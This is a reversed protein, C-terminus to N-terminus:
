EPPAPSSQPVSKSKLSTAASKEPLLKYYSSKLKVAQLSPLLIQDKNNSPTILHWHSTEEREEGWMPSKSFFHELKKKLSYLRLFACPYSSPNGGRWLEWKHPRGWGLCCGRWTRWPIPLEAAMPLVPHRPEPLQWRNRSSTCDEYTWQSLDETEGPFDAKAAM